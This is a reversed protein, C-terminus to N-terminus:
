CEDIAIVAYGVIVNFVCANAGANGSFYVDKIKM